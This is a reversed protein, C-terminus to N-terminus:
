TPSPRAAAPVPRAASTMFPAEFIRHFLYSLALVLAFGVTMLTVFLPTSSIGLPHLVYQWMLQLLPAHVLYLSYSFIGVTAFPKWGLVATLWDGGPRSTVVLLSCALVGVLLDLVL